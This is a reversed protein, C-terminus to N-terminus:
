GGQRPLSRHLVLYGVVGSLVSGLIIGLREDFLIDPDLEVNEFALGGIFLSM